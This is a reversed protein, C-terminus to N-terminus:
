KTQVFQGYGRLSLDVKGAEAVVQGRIVTYAITNSVTLGEFIKNNVAAKSYMKEISLQRPARPNIVTFDGDSGVAIKGKQPYLGFIKAANESLLRAMLKQCLHRKHWENVILTVLVETGAIGSFAQWINKEGSQKEAALLPAHDSGIYDITGDTVYKWLAAVNEASRLPPNCKAYPGLRDIDAHSFLLHHYCVEAVIDLGDDKARKILEAAEVTSVHCIGVRAGTARAFEIITAVSQAEAVNPRSKYHFDYGEKGQEHLQKELEKILLDNECHFFFRGDIEGAKQLVAFLEGTNEATLGTFEAERGKPPSHLFTKFASIGCARLENYNNRNYYGAAAYFSFDVLSKEKGIKIRMQLQEASYPPPTVNPMELVTTVGGAAAAASGSFFDERDCRGPDRFHVHSDIVGPLVLLDTGDLICEATGAFSGAPVIESITTNKIIIDANKFTGGAFYVANKIVLRTKVM